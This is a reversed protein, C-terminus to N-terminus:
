SVFLQCPLPFSATFLPKIVGPLRWGARDLAERARLDFWLSLCSLKEHVLPSELHMITFVSCAKTQTFSLHGTQDTGGAPRVSLFSGSTLSPPRQRCAATGAAYLTPSCIKLNYVSLQAYTPKRLGFGGSAVYKTAIIRTTRAPVHVLGMEACQM